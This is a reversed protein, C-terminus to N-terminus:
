RRTRASIGAIVVDLGYEFQEDGGMTAALEDGMGSLVPFEDAPLATVLGAARRRSEGTPEPESFAVSGFVYVFVARFARAAEARELGADLLAALGSETYRFAGPGGIPRRLRLEVLSPHRGLGARLARALERLTDEWAGEHGPARHESAAAEVVADLLDDKTRFYGYLTMTGMELQAALRRMSLAGLGERDVLELAARAIAERSRNGNSVIGAM